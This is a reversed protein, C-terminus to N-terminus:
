LSKSKIPARFAELLIYFQIGFLISAIVLHLPQSLFPFHFNYMAVGTIIELIILGMVWHIKAFGLNLKRNKWWLLANLLFVVISFSRHVYFIVSPNALWFQESNEGLLKVQNDVLQRVQTGMVIQVLTFLIAVM